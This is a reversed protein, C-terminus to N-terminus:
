KARGTTALQLIAEAFSDWGYSDKEIAIREAMSTRYSGAFYDVIADALARPDDPPVVLGTKGHTVMDPLGGVDTVICPVEYHQAISVIGSQTASRYPLVVVDAASFYLNVEADPIFSDALILQEGLELRDIKELYPKKDEYFEGAIIATTALRDRVLPLADLLTHVGKYARIFGFYLMVPGDGLGLAQRAEQRGLPQGFNVYPPHPARKYSADPNLQLLDEKVTDSMCIFADTHRVLYRNLARDGPRHEHPTLNDIICVTKAATKRRLQRAISGLAPAFFPMWYKYIALDIEETALHRATRYWSPPSLPDLLRIDYPPAAPEDDNYQSTGPFLFGPYQRRLNVASVEHSGALTDYLLTNFHAIGGRYPPFPGIIAIKM